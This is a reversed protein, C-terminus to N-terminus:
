NNSETKDKGRLWRVGLYAFPTDLAAFAIKFLYFPWALQLIFLFTFKPTVQYFAITMFLLTDIAQSVFTSMNNRVWLMKGKTKRKWFEFAWIDHLQSIAFAVVSAIMIRLSSTFITKYAENDISREAPELLIFISTFTFVILVAAIGSYVFQRATKKGHVEAVIDTILFTLPVMFIGVSVSVGFLEIIKGGLLNMGIMVGAFIGLLMSLKFNKEM